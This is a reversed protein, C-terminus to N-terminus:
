TGSHTLARMHAHVHMHTRPHTRTHAHARAPIAPTNNQKKVMEFMEKGGGIHNGKDLDDYNSSKFENFYTKM